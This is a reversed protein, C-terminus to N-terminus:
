GKESFDRHPVSASVVSNLYLESLRRCFDEFLLSLLFNNERESNENLVSAGYCSILSKGPFILFHFLIADTQKLFIEFNKRCWIFNMVIFFAQMKNVKMIM